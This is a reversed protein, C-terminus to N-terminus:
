DNLKKLIDYTAITIWFIIAQVAAEFSNGKFLDIIMFIFSINAVVAYVRYTGIWKKFFNLM